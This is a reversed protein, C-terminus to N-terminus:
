AAKRLAAIWRCETDLLGYLMADDTGFGRRICGEYKFGIKECFARSRKNRRAIASTVRQCGLQMFPYHFFAALAGRTLWHSDPEAAVSMMVNGYAPRFDSYVVGAILRDDRAVGIAACAGFDRAGPIRIRVWEAVAQDVGFVLNM